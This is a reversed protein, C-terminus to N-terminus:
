WSRKCESRRSSSSIEEGNTGWEESVRPLFPAENESELLCSSSFFNAESERERMERAALLSHFSLSSVLSSFALSSRLSLSFADKESHRDRSARFLLINRELLFCLSALFLAFFTVAIEVYFTNEDWQILYSAHEGEREGSSGFCCCCLGADFGCVNTPRM